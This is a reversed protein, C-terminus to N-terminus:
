IGEFLDREVYRPRAPPIARMYTEYGGRWNQLGVWYQLFGVYGAIRDARSNGGTQSIYQATAEVKLQEVERISISAHVPYNVKAVAALDIDRNTGFRHPDQGFLWLFRVTWRLARRSPFNYYLKVPSYPPSGGADIAPDGALTFASNTARHIAVHDPHGYTGVSDFTIVVQPRIQRILTAIRLAVEELPASLLSQPHESDPWGPMGSDRYGLFHVAKVGLIDTAARMEDQRMEAATAFGRLDPPAEGAEGLTACIVHVEVGRRAYLALTGGIDFTEDDPHGVVALLRLSSQRDPSEVGCM